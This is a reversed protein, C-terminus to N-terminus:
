VLAALGLVVVLLLHDVDGRAAVPRADLDAATAAVVLRVRGSRRVVRRAGSGRALADNTGWGSRDNRPSIAMASTVAASILSRRSRVPAPIDSQLFASTSVSASMSFAM